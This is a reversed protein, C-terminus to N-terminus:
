GCIEAVVTNGGSGNDVLLVMSNGVLVVAVIAVAAVTSGEVVVLWSAVVAVLPEGVTSVAM